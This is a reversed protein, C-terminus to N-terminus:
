LRFVHFCRWTGQSLGNHKHIPLICGKAYLNTALSSSNHQQPEASSFFFHPPLLEFTIKSHLQARILASLCGQIGALVITPPHSLMKIPMCCLEQSKFAWLLLHFRLQQPEHELKLQLPFPFSSSLFSLSMTVNSDTCKSADLCFVGKSFSNLFNTTQSLSCSMHLKWKSMGSPSSSLSTLQLRKELLSTFIWISIHM